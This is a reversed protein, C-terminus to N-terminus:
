NEEIFVSAIGLVLGVTSFIIAGWLGTKTVKSIGGNINGVFICISWLLLIVSIKFM